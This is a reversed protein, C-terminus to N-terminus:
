GNVVDRILGRRGEDDVAVGIRQHGNLLGLPDHLFELICLDRAFQNDLFPGPVSPPVQVLVNCDDRVPEVLVQRLLSAGPAALWARRGRKWWVTMVVGARRPVRSDRRPILGLTGAM